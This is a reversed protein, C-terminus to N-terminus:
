QAVGSTETAGALTLALDRQVRLASELLMVGFDFRPDDRMDEICACAHRVTARDRDFLRACAALSEGLAVHQLYVAFQRAKAIDARRTPTAMTRTTAGFVAAAAAATLGPIADVPPACSKTPSPLLTSM